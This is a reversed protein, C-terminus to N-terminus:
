TISAVVSPNRHANNTDGKGGISSNEGRCLLLLRTWAAKQM